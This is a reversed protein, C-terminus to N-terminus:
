CSRIMAGYVGAVPYWTKRMDHNALSLSNLLLVTLKTHLRFTTTFEKIKRIKRVSGNDCRNHNRQQIMVAHSLTLFFLLIAQNRAYSIM